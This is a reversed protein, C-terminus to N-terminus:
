SCASKGKTGLSMVADMSASIHALLTETCHRYPWFEATLSGDYHIEGLATMVEPWNVDGELLGVFAGFGMGLVKFDKMHIRKIRRGLIRIWQEPYGYPIINGVDLYVGARASSLSDVFQRMELPSLLFKNWVNEICLFVGLEEALPLAATLAEMSREWATDYSVVGPEAWDAQVVAPVVLLADTGAWACMRISRELLARAKKRTQPNESTLPYKWCLGALLASVELGADRVTRAIRRIDAEPTLISFEGEEGIELEVADFKAKRILALRRGLPLDARTAGLIVSKKM